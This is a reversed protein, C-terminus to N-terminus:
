TRTTISAAPLLPVDGDNSLPGKQLDPMAVGAAPDAASFVVAPIAYLVRGGRSLERLEPM